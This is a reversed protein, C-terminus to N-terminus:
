NGGPAPLTTVAFKQSSLLSWKSNISAGEKVSRAIIQVFEKRGYSQSFTNTTIAAESTYSRTFAGDVSEFKLTFVTSDNVKSSESKSLLRGKDLKSYSESGYNDLARETGNIIDYTFYKGEKKVVYIGNLFGDSDDRIYAFPMSIKGFGDVVGFKGTEKNYFLELDKQFTLKSMDAIQNLSADYLIKNEEDYYNGNQLATLNLLERGTLDDHFVNVGDLIKKHRSGLVHNGTLEDFELEVYRPNGNEDKVTKASVFNKNPHISEVAGEVLDIRKTDLKYKMVATQNATAKAYDYDAADPGVLMARQEYLSQGAMFYTADSAVTYQFTMKGEADYVYYNRGITKYKKNFKADQSLYSFSGGAGNYDDQFKYDYDTEDSPLKEISSAKGATDYVYYYTKGSNQNKLTSYTTGHIDQYTLNFKDTTYNGNYLINGMGDVIMTVGDPRDDTGSIAITFRAGFMPDSAINGQFINSDFQPTILMKNGFYSFVGYKGDANTLIAYGKDFDRSVVNMTNSISIEESAYSRRFLDYDENVKANARIVAQTLVNDGKTEPDYSPTSPAVSQSSSFGSAEGGSSVSQPNSTCSVLLFSVALVKLFSVHRPM